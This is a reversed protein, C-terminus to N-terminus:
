LHLITQCLRIPAIITRITSNVEPHMNFRQSPNYMSYPPSYWRRTMPSTVFCGAIVRLPACQADALKPYKPPTYKKVPTVIIDNTKM